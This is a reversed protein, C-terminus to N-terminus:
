IFLKVISDFDCAAEIADVHMDVTALHNLQVDVTNKQMNQPTVGSSKDFEAAQLFVPCRVSVTDGQKSAANGDINEKYVLNPFVLNDILRPLTERAIQKVSIEVKSM